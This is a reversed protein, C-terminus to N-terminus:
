LSAERVDLRAWFDDETDIGHFTAQLRGIVQWGDAVLEQVAQMVAPRAAAASSTVRVPDISHDAWAGDDLPAYCIYSITATPLLMLDGQRDLVLFAQGGQEDSSMDLPLPRWGRWRIAPLALAAECDGSQECCTERKV